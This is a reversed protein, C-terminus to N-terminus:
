RVSFVARTLRKEVGPLSVSAQTPALRTAIVRFPSPAPDYEAVMEFSAFIVSPSITVTGPLALEGMPFTSVIVEFGEEGSTSIKTDGKVLGNVM